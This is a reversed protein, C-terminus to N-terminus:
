EEPEFSMWVQNICNIFEDKRRRAIPIKINGSLEAYGDKLYRKLHVLNILYSKHCQIFSPLETLHYNIKGFSETSTFTTGDILYIKSYRDSAQIAVIDIASIIELTSITPIVLKKQKLDTLAM